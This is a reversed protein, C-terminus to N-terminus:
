QPAFYKLYENKIEAPTLARNYIQVNDIKGTWPSASTLVRNGIRLSDTPATYSGTSGTNINKYDGDVYIKLVNGFPISTSTTIVVAVHHWQGDNITDVGSVSITQGGRIQAYIKYAYLFLGWGNSASHVSVVYGINATQTTNFLATVTFTTNPFSFPIGSAAV